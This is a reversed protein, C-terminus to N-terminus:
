ILIYDIGLFSLARAIGDVVRSREADSVPSLGDPTEWNSITRTYVALGDGPEVEVKITREGVRYELSHRASRQVLYGEDSVVANPGIKTFM